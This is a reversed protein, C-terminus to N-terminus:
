WRLAPRYKQEQLIQKAYDIDIEGILQKFTDRAEEYCYVNRGYVTQYHFNERAEDFLKRIELKNELGM